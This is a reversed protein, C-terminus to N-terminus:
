VGVDIGGMGRVMVEGGRGGLAEARGREFVQCFRDFQVRHAGLELVLHAHHSQRHTVQDLRPLYTPLTPSFPTPRAANRTNFCLGGM